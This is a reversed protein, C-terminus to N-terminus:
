RHHLGLHCGIRQLLLPVSANAFESEHEDRQCQGFLQVLEWGSRRRGPTGNSCRPDQMGMHGAHMLTTCFFLFSAGVLIRFTRM